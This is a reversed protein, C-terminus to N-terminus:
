RRTHEKAECSKKVEEESKRARVGRYVKHVCNSLAESKELILTEVDLSFNGLTYASYLCKKEIEKGLAFRFLDSQEFQVLFM